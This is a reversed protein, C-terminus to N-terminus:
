VRRKRSGCMCVAIVSQPEAMIVDSAAAIARNREAIGFIMPKAIMRTTPQNRADSISRPSATTSRRTRKLSKASREPNPPKTELIFTSTSGAPM